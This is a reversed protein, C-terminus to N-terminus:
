NQIQGPIVRPAVLYLLLWGWRIQAKEAVGPGGLVGWSGSGLVGPGGLVRIGPGGLVRIGPGRVGWSGSKDIRASDRIRPDPPWFFGSSPGGGLWFHGIRAVGGLFGPDPWSGLFTALFGSFHGPVWFGGFGWFGWFGGFVWFVGFRGFRGFVVLVM